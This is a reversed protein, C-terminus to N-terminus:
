EIMHVLCVSRSPDAWAGFVHPLRVRWQIWRVLYDQAVSSLHVVVWGFCLSEAKRFCVSSCHLVKIQYYRQTNTKTPLKMMNYIYYGSFCSRKAAGFSSNIDNLFMWKWMNIKVCESLCGLQQTQTTHYCLQSAGLETVLVSFWSFRSLTWFTIVFSNRQVETISCSFCLAWACVHLSLDRGSKSPYLQKIALQGSFLPQNYRHPREKILATM